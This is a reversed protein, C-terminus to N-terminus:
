LHCACMEQYQGCSTNGSEGPWGRLDRQRARPVARRAHTPQLRPGWVVAASRGGRGRREGQNCGSVATPILSRLPRM